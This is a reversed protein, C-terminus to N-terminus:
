DLAGGCNLHIKIREGQAQRARKDKSWLM